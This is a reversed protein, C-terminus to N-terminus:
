GKLGGSYVNEMITNQFGVFLAVVPILSILVGAFYIPQNATYKIRREYLWLGSALTPLNPMFLLPTEYNNWTGVFSMVAIATMAPLAMPFMINFFVRFNGAGDVFAAEAYNWSIGKFFSYMVIFNFGFGSTATFVFAYSDLFNLASLLRYTTPLSGYVPIIMIFLALGYLFEKGWFQYKCVVYATASSCLIGLVTSMGAYWFTNFIMKFFSNEAVTLEEFARVYNKWHMPFPFSVSNEIFARGNEKLSAVFSFLFPYLLLAAYITFVIFVTVYVIKETPKMNKLRM